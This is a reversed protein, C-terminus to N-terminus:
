GQRTQAWLSRYQEVTPESLPELFESQNLLTKANPLLVPNRRLADPFSDPNLATLIPSTARSLLSIQPAIAPQWCFNIWQSLASNQATESRGRSAPRVWLDAWLATGSPPFVAKIQSYRRMASLVDSSWGVAVWTDNLVLPQMYTDSSYFKAQQHLAKLEANLTDVTSLDPTNYSRGLKKLTLGITERPQDLLSIRGKLDERWLDAWDTPPELNQERFIDERYAIVTSGWLYPAGWVQGTAAFLGQDTRTVLSRWKEPLHQWQDWGSPDLPQILGQRIATTLWYDGLTALDPASLDRGGVFPVWGPIPSRPPPEVQRKWQQLLAFLDQLQDEPKFDIAAHDFQKRFQDVLQLPVSDRRSRVRLVDGAPSCGALSVGLAATGVLFSRRDM